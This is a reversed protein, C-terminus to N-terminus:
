GGVFVKQLDEQRNERGIEGGEAHDEDVYGSYWVLEGHQETLEGLKEMCDSEDNSGVTVEFDDVFRGCMRFPELIASKIDSITNYYIM